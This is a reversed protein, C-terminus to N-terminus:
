ESDATNVSEVARAHVSSQRQVLSALCQQARHRCEAMVVEPELAAPVVRRKTTSQWGLRAIQRFASSEKQAHVFIQVLHVSIGM